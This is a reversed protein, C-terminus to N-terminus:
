VPPPGAAKGNDRNTSSYQLVLMALLVVGVGPLVAVPPLGNGMALDILLVLGPYLYSYAMARTPGIHPVCYQTLFFTIVTTFIALYLIGAWTHLSILSWEVALLHHGTFLILWVSGTVLVWFTMVLMSEGRHLLKILPTYFGMCICGALFILDGKNWEMALLLSLDGRFIVWIAGALGFILALLQQRRLHERVLLLAYLSSISPVLTFIVSTNLATTYRLALFMCWFFIVLCGSIISCRGLLGASVRLGHQLHIIPALIVSAMVFRLLTLVAPDLAAAIAAGVTFSTSVLTACVIMLLHIFGRSHHGTVEMNQVIKGNGSFDV